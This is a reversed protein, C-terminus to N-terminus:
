RENESDQEMRLRLYRSMGELEDTHLFDVGHDIWAAWVEGRDPANYFRVKRGLAHAKNVICALRESQDPPIDGKGNWDMYANWNLAYYGWRADAPPDDPTFDNSDRIARRRPRSEVFAKKMDANGTLVVTVPGPVPDGQDDFVTLMPYGDLLTHLAEALGDDADKLDVWITFPAGGPQVHGDRDV